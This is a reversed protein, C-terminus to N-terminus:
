EMRNLVDTLTNMLMIDDPSVMEDPKLSAPTSTRNASPPKKPRIQQRAPKKSDEVVVSTDSKKRRKSTNILLSKMMANEQPKLTKNKARSAGTSASALAGAHNVLNTYIDIEQRLKGIVNKLKDNEQKVSNYEMQLKATELEKTKKKTDVAVPSSAGTRAGKAGAAAGTGRKEETRPMSHSKSSKDEIIWQKSSIIRQHNPILRSQPESASRINM